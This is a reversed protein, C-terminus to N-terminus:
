LMRRYRAEKLEFDGRPETKEGGDASWGAIEYFRRARQNTGLVWLIAERFGAERLGALARNMLDRGAGRGWYTPDLYIAYVQGVQPDIPEDESPGFSIFGAISGGDEAVLITRRRSSAEPISRQWLSTRRELDSTLGDLYADPVQGRYAVQWSAVHARAIAAADRPEAPRISVVTRSM